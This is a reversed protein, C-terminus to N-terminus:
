KSRDEGVVTLTREPCLFLTHTDGGCKGHGEIMRKGWSNM